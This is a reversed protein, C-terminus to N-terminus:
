ALPPWGTLSWSGYKKSHQRLSGCWVCLCVHVNGWRKRVQVCVKTRSSKNYIDCVLM